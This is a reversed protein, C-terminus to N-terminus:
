IMLLLKFPSGCCLQRFCRQPIVTRCRDISDKRGLFSFVFCKCTSHTIYVVQAIFFYDIKASVLVYVYLQIICLFSKKLRNIALVLKCHLAICHLGSIVELDFFQCIYQIPSIYMDNMCRVRSFVYKKRSACPVCTGM